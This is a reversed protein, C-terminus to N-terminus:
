KHKKNDAVTGNKNEKTISLNTKTNQPQIVHPYLLEMPVWQGNRWICGTAFCYFEPFADTSELSEETIYLGTHKGYFPELIKELIGKLKLALTTFEVIDQKQFAANSLEKLLGSEQIVKQIVPLIEELYDKHIRLGHFLIQKVYDSAIKGIKTCLTEYGTRYKTKLVKLPVKDRNAKLTKLQNELEKQLQFTEQPLSTEM